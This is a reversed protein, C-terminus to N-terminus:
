KGGSENNIIAVAGIIQHTTGPRCISHYLATAKANYPKRAKTPRLEFHSGGHNITETEWGSDDVVMTSGNRLNVFDLERAKILVYIERIEKIEVTHETGDTEIIRAKM